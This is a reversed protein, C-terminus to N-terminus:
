YWSGNTAYRFWDTNSKWYVKLCKDKRDWKIEKLNESTYKKQMETGLAALHRKFVREFLQQQQETLKSFGNVKSFYFDTTTVQIGKM